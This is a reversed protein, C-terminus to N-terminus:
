EDSDIEVDVIQGDEKKQLKPIDHLKTSEIYEKELEVKLLYRQLEELQIKFPQLRSLINLRDLEAELMTQEVEEIEDTLLILDKLKRQHIKDFEKAHLGHAFEVSFEDIVEAKKFFNDNLRQLLRKSYEIDKFIDDLEKQVEDYRNQQKIIEDKITAIKINFSKIDKVYEQTASSLSEKINSIAMVTSAISEQSVIHNDAM